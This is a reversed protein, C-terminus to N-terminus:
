LRTLKGPLTLNLFSLSPHVKAIRERDEPTHKRKSSEGMLGAWGDDDDDDDDHDETQGGEADLEDDSGEELMEKAEKEGDKLGEGDSRWKKRAAALLDGSLGESARPSLARDVASYVSGVRMLYAKGDGGMADQGADAAFGKLLATLAEQIEDRCWGWEKALISVDEDEASSGLSSVVFVLKSVDTSLKSLYPLAAHPTAPLKGLALSLSTTHSKILTLLSRLDAYLTPIPVIASSSTSPLPPNLIATM